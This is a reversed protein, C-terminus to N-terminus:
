TIDLGSNPKYDGLGDEFTSVLRAAIPKFVAVPQFSLTGQKVIVSAPRVAPTITATPRSDGSREYRSKPPQIVTTRTNFAQGAPGATMPPQWLCASLFAIETPQVPREQSREFTDAYLGPPDYADAVEAEASYISLPFVGRNSGSSAKM